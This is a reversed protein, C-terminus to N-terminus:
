RVPIGLSFLGGCGHLFVVAPGSDQGSSPHFVYGDLSTPPQAPGNNELSPFHVRERAAAAGLWHLVV